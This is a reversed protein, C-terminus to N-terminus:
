PGLLLYKPKASQTTEQLSWVSNKSHLFLRLHHSMNLCAHSGELLAEWKCLCRAEQTDRLSDFHFSGVSYSFIDAFQIQYLVQIWFVYIFSKFISLIKTSFICLHDIFLHSSTWYDLIHSVVQCGNPHSYYLCYCTCIALSPQHQPM